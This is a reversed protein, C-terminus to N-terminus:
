DFRHVEADPPALVTMDRHRGSATFEKAAAAFAPPPRYGHASVYHWLMVPAAYTVGGEGPVRLEGNGFEGALVKAEGEQMDAWAVPGCIGCSHFGRTLSIRQHRLLERIADLLEGDVPGTSPCTNGLWGVALTREPAHRFSVYVSGPLQLTTTDSYRYPALDKIRTM